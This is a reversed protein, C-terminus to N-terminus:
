MIDYTFTKPGPGLLPYGILFIQDNQRLGELAFPIRFKVARAKATRLIVLRLCHLLFFFLNALVITKCKCWSVLLAYAEIHRSVGIDPKFNTVASIKYM